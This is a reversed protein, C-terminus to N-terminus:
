IADLQPPDIRQVSNGKGAVAFAREIMGNYRSGVGLRLDHATRAILDSLDELELGEINLGSEELNEGLYQKFYRYFLVDGAEDSLAQVFSNLIHSQTM